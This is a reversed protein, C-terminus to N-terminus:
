DVGAAAAEGDLVAANRRDPPQQEGFRELGTPGCLCLLHIGDNSGSAAARCVSIIEDWADRAVNRSAVIRDTANRPMRLVNAVVSGDVRAHTSFAYMITNAAGRGSVGAEALRLVQGKWM